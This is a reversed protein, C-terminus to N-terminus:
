DTLRELVLPSPSPPEPTIRYASRVSGVAEELRADANYQLVALTEGRKVPDGTKRELRVGVAPDVTDEQRMRGGGLLVVAVGVGRADMAGVYGDAEATVARTRTAAPLRSLDEVIRPDGGQLEVCRAFRELARGSALQGRATKRASDLDPAVGGLRIMEAALEVSLDELDKSGEGRLTRVSEAVEVANGATLGLPQNMDTIFATMRKGMRRGTDVMGEALRRADERTQMFAGKGTKVDLVLADIGEALKKSMISATILPISEVTSTVDRLAYLKRDAPAIRETQGAICFGATELARRIGPVDLKVSFGPIAELKDLTGGTHGLGRGSIMPVLVGAAAAIPALVLSTKDGVGGTSHKDAKPGSLDSLDLLDGSHLMAETLHRTEEGDMGRLYIAMLLASLQYDPVSGDTAGQVAFRVQDASLTGGDRKTRIVDLINM